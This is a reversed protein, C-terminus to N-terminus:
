ICKIFTEFGKSFLRIYIFETLLYLNQFIKEYVTHKYTLNYNGISKM